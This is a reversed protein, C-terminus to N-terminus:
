GTAAVAARAVASTQATTEDVGITSPYMALPSSNLSRWRATCGGLCWQPPSSWAACRVGNDACAGVLHAGDLGLGVAPVGRAPGAAPRGVRRQVARPRPGM